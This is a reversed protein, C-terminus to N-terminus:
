AGAAVFTFALEYAGDALPLARVIRGLVALSAARPTRTSICTPSSPRRNRPRWCASAAWHFTAETDRWFRAWRWIPLCRTSASGSRSRGASRVRHETGGQLYARM